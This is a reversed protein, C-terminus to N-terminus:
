VSLSGLSALQASGYKRKFSLLRLLNINILTGSEVELMFGMLVEKVKPM